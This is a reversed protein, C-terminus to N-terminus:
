VSFWGQFGTFPGKMDLKLETNKNRREIIKLDTAPCCVEKGKSGYGGLVIIKKVGIEEYLDLVKEAVEYHGNFNAHYGMTIILEPFATSYFRVKPFEIGKSGVKIGADGPFGPHPHYSPKTHFIIPFHTSYLEAVLEAQLEDVLHEIARKGISRLGPSVVIAVAEKLKPRKLYKIWTKSVM